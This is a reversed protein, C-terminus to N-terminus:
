CCLNHKDQTTLMLAITFCVNPMKSETSPGLEKLLLVAIIVGFFRGCFGRLDM